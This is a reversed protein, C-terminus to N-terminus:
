PRVERVKRAAALMKARRDQAAQEQQQPAVWARWKGTLWKFVDPAIAEGSAELQADLVAYLRLLRGAADEGGTDRILDAHLKHPVDLRAGVYACRTRAKEVDLSSRILGGGRVVRIPAADAEAETETQAETDAEAEAEAEAQTSLTSKDSVNNVNTSLRSKRYEAQKRRLYDRREDENVKQRYKAHNLIQWGGDVPMIRRGEFDQSRSDPDLACLVDIADRCQEVSVRAFDALGPISAEAVGHKDAMALLTIWVLRVHDPERWVTSALISNFLKTYGSM